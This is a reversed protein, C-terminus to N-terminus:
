GYIKYIKNYIDLYEDWWEKPIPLKADVYRGIAANLEDYRQENLIFRPRLGIPPKNVYDTKQLIEEIEKERRQENQIPQMISGKGYCEEHWIIHEQCFRLLDKAEDRSLNPHIDKLYKISLLRSNKGCEECLKMKPKVRQNSIREIEAALKALSDMVYKDDEKKIYIAKIKGDQGSIDHTNEHLTRKIDIEEINANGFRIWGLLSNIIKKASDEDETTLLLFTQKM